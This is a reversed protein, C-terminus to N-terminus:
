RGGPSQKRNQELGRIENGGLTFDVQRLGPKPTRRAVVSLPHAM